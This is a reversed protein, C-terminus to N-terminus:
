KRGNETLMHITTIKFGRDPLELVRTTDLNPESEQKTSKSETSKRAKKCGEIWTLEM